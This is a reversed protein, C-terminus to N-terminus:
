KESIFIGEQVGSGNTGKVKAKGTYEGDEKTGAGGPCGAGATYKIKKVAASIEIERTKGAGVTTYTVSSKGTQAPITVECISAKIVIPGCGTPVIDVTGVSSSGTGTGAHFNYKCTGFTVTASVFGFAKCESYTPTIEVTESKASQKGSFTAKACEVSGASTKFVNTGVQSGGITVPYTEANFFSASAASAAVASMAFVAVCSVGLVRLRHKM